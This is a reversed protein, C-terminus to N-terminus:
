LNVMGMWGQKVITTPSVSNITLIYTRIYMKSNEGSILLVYMYM